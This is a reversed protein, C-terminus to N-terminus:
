VTLMVRLRHATMAPEARCTRFQNGIRLRRGLQLGDPPLESRGSFAFELEQDVAM